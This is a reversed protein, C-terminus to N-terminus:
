IFVVTFHDSIWVTLYLTLIKTDENSEVLIENRRLYRKTDCFLKKKQYLIYSKKVYKTTWGSLNFFTYEHFVKDETNSNLDCASFM